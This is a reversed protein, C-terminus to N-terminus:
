IVSINHYKNYKCSNHIFINLTYKNKIHDSFNISPIGDAISKMVDGKLFDLHERDKFHVKKTNREESSNSVAETTEKTNM